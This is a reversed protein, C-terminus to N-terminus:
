ARRAIIRDKVQDFIVRPLIGRDLLDGKSQYPRSSIIKAALTEDIGVSVLWNTPASNIDVLNDHGTPMVAVPTCSAETAIGDGPLVTEIGLALGAAQLTVIVTLPTVFWTRINM